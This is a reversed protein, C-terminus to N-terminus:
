VFKRIVQFITFDPLSANLNAERTTDRPYMVECLLATYHDREKEERKQLLFRVVSM